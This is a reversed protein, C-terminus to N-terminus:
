RPRVDADVVEAASLALRVDLLAARAEADLGSEVQGLLTVASRLAELVPVFAGAEREMDREWLPVRRPRDEWGCLRCVYM